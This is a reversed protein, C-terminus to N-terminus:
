DKLLGVSILAQKIEKRFELLDSKNSNSTTKQFASLVAELASRDSNIIGTELYLPKPAEPKPPAPKAPEEPKPPAPKASESPAPLAPTETPVETFEADITNTKPKASEPINPEYNSYGQLYEFAQQLRPKQKSIRAALTREARAVGIVFAVTAWGGQAFTVHREPTLDDFSPSPCAWGRGTFKGRKFASYISDARVEHPWIKENKLFVYMDQVTGFRVGAASEIRALQSARQDAALAKKGDESLANILKEREM